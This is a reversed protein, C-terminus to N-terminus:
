VEMLCFILNIYMSTYLKKKEAKLLIVPNHSCICNHFCFLEFLLLQNFYPKYWNFIATEGVSVETKVRFLLFFAYSLLLFTFKYSFAALNVIIGVFTLLYRFLYFCHDNNANNILSYWFIFMYHFSLIFLTINQQGQLSIPEDANM